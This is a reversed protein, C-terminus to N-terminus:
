EVYEEIEFPLQLTENYLYDKEEGTTKNRVTVKFSLEDGETPKYTQKNARTTYFPRTISLIINYSNHIQMFHNRSYQQWGNIAGEDQEYTNFETPNLFEVRFEFEGKRNYDCYNDVTLWFLRKDSQHKPYNVTIQPELNEVANNKTTIIVTNTNDDWAVNCGLMESIFRIPVMTREDKLIGFTDMVVMEGNLSAFVKYVTYRIEDREKNIIATQNEAEWNVTAGLAESVFRIPVLVRDRKDIFPQADPFFIQEGNLTVRVTETAAVGVVSIM